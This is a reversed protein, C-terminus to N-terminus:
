ERACVPFKKIHLQEAKGAPGPDPILFKCHFQQTSLPEFTFLSDSRALCPVPFSSSTPPEDEAFLLPCLHSLDMSKVGGPTGTSGAPSKGFAAWGWPSREQPAGCREWTTAPFPSPLALALPSKGLPFKPITTWVCYVQNELPPKM